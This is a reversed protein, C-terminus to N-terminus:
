ISDNDLRQATVKDLLSQQLVVIEKLIEIREKKIAEKTREDDAFTKELKKYEQELSHIRNTIKPDAMAGNQIVIIRLILLRAM